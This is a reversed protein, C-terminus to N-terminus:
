EPFIGAFANKLVILTEFSQQERHITWKQVCCRKQEYVVTKSYTTSRHAEVGACSTKNGQACM